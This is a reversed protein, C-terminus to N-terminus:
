FNQRIGNKKKQKKKFRQAFELKLHAAADETPDDLALCLAEFNVFIMKGDSSQIDKRKRSAM